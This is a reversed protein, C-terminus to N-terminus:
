RRELEARNWQGLDAGAAYTTTLFATLDDEPSNAARVKEYPLFFESLDASYFAAAPRV